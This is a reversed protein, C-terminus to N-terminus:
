SREVFKIFGSLSRRLRCSLDQSQFQDWRCRRQSALWSPASFLVTKMSSSCIPACAMVRMLCMQSSTFLSKETYSSNFSMETDTSADFRIVWVEMTGLLGAWVGSCSWGMSVTIEMISAHDEKSGVCSPLRFGYTWLPFHYRVPDRTKNRTQRTQLSWNFCMKRSTGSFAWRGRLLCTM